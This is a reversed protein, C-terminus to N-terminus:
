NLDLLNRSAEKEPLNKIKFYLYCVAMVAGLLWCMVIFVYQAFNEDSAM